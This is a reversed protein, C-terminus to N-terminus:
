GSIQSHICEGYSQIEKTSLTASLRPDKRTSKSHYQKRLKPLLLMLVDDGKMKYCEVMRSGNYRTIYHNTYKGIKDNILYDVEEEWTPFVSIGNYSATIKKGITSKLECEGDKDVGDSGSLTPSVQIGLTFCTHIERGRNYNFCDGVDLQTSLEQLKDFTDLWEQQLNSMTNDIM